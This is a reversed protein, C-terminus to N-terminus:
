CLLRHKKHAESSGGSAGHLAIVLPRKNNSSSTTPTIVRFNWFVGKITSELQLDNVGPSINLAQFDARVDDATRTQTEIVDDSGECNVFCCVLLLLLSFELTIAHSVLVCYIVM